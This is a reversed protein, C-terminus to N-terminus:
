PKSYKRYASALRELSKALHEDSCGNIAILRDLLWILENLTEHKSAAIQEQNM